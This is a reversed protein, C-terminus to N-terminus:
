FYAKYLYLIILRLVLPYGCYSDLDFVKIFVVNERDSILIQFYLSILRLWLIQKCIRKDRQIKVYNIIQNAM